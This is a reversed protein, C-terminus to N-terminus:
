STYLFLVLWILKVYNDLSVGMSALGVAIGMAIFIPVMWLILKKAWYAAFVLAFGMFIQGVTIVAQLALFNPDRQFFSLAVGAHLLSHAEFASILILSGGFLIRTANEAERFNM